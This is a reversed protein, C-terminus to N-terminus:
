KQSGAKPPVAGRIVAGAELADLESAGLGLLRGLVERTDEGNERGPWRVSGPTRSLKPVIGSQTLSGLVPHPVQLLMERARYHADEFVDPMKYVRSSPM